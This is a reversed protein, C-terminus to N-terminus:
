KIRNWEKDTFGFGYGGTFGSLAFSVMGVLQNNVNFILAGSDGTAAPLIFWTVVKEGRMAYGSFYGETYCDKCVISATVAYKFVRDGQQLSYPAPKGLYAKFEKFDSSLGAGKLIAIAHDNGDLIVEDVVAHAGQKTGYEDLILLDAKPYDGLCHEATLITHPGIAYVTCYGNDAEHPAAIYVEHMAAHIQEKTNGAYCTM